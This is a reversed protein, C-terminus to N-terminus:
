SGTGASPSLGARRASLASLASWDRDGDGHVYAEILHDRLLSAVPMPVSAADAAELVLRVDKLGLRLKFGAPEFREAAINAGYAGYIASWPLGATLVQQLVEVEVGSKRGLAFAEGLTEIMSALAFNGVLKVVNALWPQHGVVVVGGALSDLVPRVKDLVEPAGAAVVMMQRSVAADPRGFVPASVFGQGGADHAYALRLALAPSITSMSVHAAGSALAALVHDTVRGHEAPSGLTVCEVAADDALMTVVVEAEASAEAISEAVAAEGALAEARSRTRNFVTVEHGAHALNRAMPLGMAGLGIFGIKM